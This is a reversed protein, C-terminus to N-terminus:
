RMIKNGPPLSGWHKSMYGAIRLKEQIYVWTGSGYQRQRPDEAIGSAAM